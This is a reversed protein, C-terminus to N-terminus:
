PSQHYFTPYGEIDTELTEGKVAYEYLYDTEKDFGKSSVLLDLFDQYSLKTENFVM